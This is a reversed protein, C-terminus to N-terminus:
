HDGSWLPATAFITLARREVFGARAPLAPTIPTQFWLLGNEDHLEGPPWRGLQSWHAVLAQENDAIVSVREDIM